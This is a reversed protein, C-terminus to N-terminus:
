VKMYALINCVCEMKEFAIKLCWEKSDNFVSKAQIVKIVRTVFVECCSICIGFARRYKCFSSGGGAASGCSCTRLGRRRLCLRFTWICRFNLSFRRVQHRTSIQTLWGTCSCFLLLRSLSAEQTDPNLQEGAEAGSSDGGQLIEVLM